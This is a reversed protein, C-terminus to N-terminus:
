QTKILNDIFNNFVKTKEASFNNSINNYNSGARYHLFTNNLFFETNRHRDKGYPVPMQQIFDIMNQTFNHEKLLDNNHTCYTTKTKICQPCILTYICIRDISKFRAHDFEKMYAFTFGGADLQVKGQTGCNFNLATKHPLNKMDIFVLGIWLFDLHPVESTHQNNMIVDCCSKYFAAITYENMYERVDFEKILFMDSDILMLIDDHAFGLVDLSYQVVNSNRTSAQQFTKFEGWDTRHLYPRNHIEQPIDICRLDRELCIKHIEDYDGPNVADNFIIFEYENKMFHKFTTDQLAIFDPRNYAYTFILIKALVPSTQLFSLLLILNIIKNMIFGKYTKM